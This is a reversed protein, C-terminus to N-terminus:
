TGLLLTDRQADYISDPDVDEVEDVAVCEDTPLHGLTCAQCYCGDCTEREASDLYEGDETTEFPNRCTRCTLTLVEPSDALCAHV